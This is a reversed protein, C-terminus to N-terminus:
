RPRGSSRRPSPGRSRCSPSPRTCSRRLLAARRAPHRRRLAHVAETISVFRTERHLAVLPLGRGQAARVLAPPLAKAYRRGLEVVLGAVGVNDLDAVYAALDADDSPLAVGTTLILEGGRLLGAIDALESVHAWRVRRDLNEEGAVVAPLGQRVQELALVDAVTPFM